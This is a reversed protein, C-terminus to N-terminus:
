IRSDQWFHANLDGEMFRDAGRRCGAADDHHGFGGNLLLVTPIDHQDNLIAAGFASGDGDAARARVLGDQAGSHGGSFSDHDLPRGSQSVSCAYFLDLWSCADSFYPNSARRNFTVTPPSLKTSSAIM